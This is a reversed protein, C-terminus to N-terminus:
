PYDAISYISSTVVQTPPEISNMNTKTFTNLVNNQQQTRQQEPIQSAIYAEMLFNKDVIFFRCLNEEVHNMEYIFMMVDNNKTDIISLQKLEPFQKSMPILKWNRIFEHFENTFGDEQHFPSGGTFNTPTDKAECEPSGGAMPGNWIKHHISQLMPIINPYGTLSYIELKQGTPVESIICESKSDLTNTLYVDCQISADREYDIPNMPIYRTFHNTFYWKKKKQKVGITVHNGWQVGEIMGGNQQFEEYLTEPFSEHFGAVNGLQDIFADYQIGKETYLYCYNPSYGEHLYIPESTYTPNEWKRVTKSIVPCWEEKMYPALKMKEFYLVRISSFPLSRVFTYLNKDYM